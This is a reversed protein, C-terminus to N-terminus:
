PNSDGRWSRRRKPGFGSTTFDSCNLCTWLIHLLPQGPPCLSPLIPVGTLVEPSRALAPRPLNRPRSVDALEYAESNPRVWNQPAAPMPGSPGQRRTRDSDRQARSCTECGLPYDLPFSCQPTDNPRAPGCPPPPSFDIPASLYRLPWVPCVTFRSDISKPPEFGGREVM